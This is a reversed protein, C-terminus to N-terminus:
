FVSTDLASRLKWRRFVREFINTDCTVSKKISLINNQNGLQENKYKYHLRLVFKENWKTMLKLEGLMGFCFFQSILFGSM